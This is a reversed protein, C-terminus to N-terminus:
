LYITGPQFPVPPDDSVHFVVSVQSTKGGKQTITIRADYDGAQTFTHAKTVDFVRQGAPYSTRSAAPDFTIAAAVTPTGDGWNMIATYDSAKAFPRPTGFTPLAGAFAHGTQLYIVAPATDVTFQLPDSVTVIGTSSTLPAFGARHVTITTAYNGGHAYTHSGLVDLDGPTTRDAVVIGASTTGDGWNVTATYNAAKDGPIQPHITGVLANTAPVRAVLYPSNGYLSPTLGVNSVTVTVKITISQSDGNKDTVTLTVPFVGANTYTHNGSVGALTFPSPQGGVAPASQSDVVVFFGIQGPSSTGDGWQITASYDSLESTSDPPVEIEGLNLGVNQGVTATPIYTSPVLAFPEATVAATTTSTTSLGFADAIRVHITYTGAKAYLHAGNVSFTGPLVPIVIAPTVQSGTVSAEAVIPNPFYGGNGVMGLTPPTGDGWDITATYDAPIANARNTHFTAVQINGDAIGQFETVPVPFPKLIEFGARPDTTIQGIRNGAPDTFALSSPGDPVITTPDVFGAPLPIQTVPGGAPSFRGIAPGSPDTETFWLDGNPGSAIANPTAYRAAIPYLRVQGSPTVRGIAHAGPDTFWLNGDAGTTISSPGANGGAASPIKYETVVGAPTIAGVANGPRDAFWINGDPGITLADAEVGNPLPFELIAGGPKLEGIKHTVTLGLQLPNYVTETFWDNGVGDSVMAGPFANPTPLSYETVNGSDDVMGIAHATPQTFAVGSGGLFAIGSAGTIGKPLAVEHIKGASDVWGIKGARGDTFYLRDSTYPNFTYSSPVDVIGVPFAGPTPVPFATVASALLNRGELPEPTPRFRPSRRRGSALQRPAKSGYGGNKRKESHSM